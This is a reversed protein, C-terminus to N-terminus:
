YPATFSRSDGPREKLPRADSEDLLLTQDVRVDKLTQVRGSPWRITVTCPADWQGLGFILAPQHTAAYSTGGCLEQLYTVPGAQVTIRCNIGRRNSQRGRMFLKLWHGRESENRLLAAPFNEQAIALDLDGDGDYDCAAVARGVYKGQFFEGAEPSADRFRKGDWAL